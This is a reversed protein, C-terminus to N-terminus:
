ASPTDLALREVACWLIFGQLLFQAALASILAVTLGLTSLAAALVFCFVAFTCLSPLFGRFFQTVAASGCQAHTFSAIIATAVPFPTLVGTLGPGLRDAASTLVLM